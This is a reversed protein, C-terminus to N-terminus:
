TNWDVSQRVEAEPLIKVRNVRAVPAAAPAAGFAFSYLFPVASAICHWQRAANGRLYHSLHVMYVCDGVDGGTRAIIRVKKVDLPFPDL